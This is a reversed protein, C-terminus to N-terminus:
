ARTGGLAPEACSAAREPSVRPTVTPGRASVDCPSARVKAGGPAAFAQHERTRRRRRKADAPSVTGLIPSEPRMRICAACFRPSLSSRRHPAVLVDNPIPVARQEVVDGQAEVDHVPHEVRSAHAADLRHPIPLNEVERDLEIVALETEVEVDLREVPERREIALLVIRADDLARELVVCAPDELAQRLA